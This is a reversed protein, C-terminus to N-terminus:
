SNEDRAKRHGEMMRKRYKPKKWNKKMKKRRRGAEKKGVKKFTETRQKWTELLKKAAEEDKIEAHASETLARVFATKNDMYTHYRKFLLHMLAVYLKNKETRTM